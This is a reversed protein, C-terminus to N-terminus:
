PRQASPSQRVFDLLLRIVLTSMNEADTKQLLNTVHNAYTKPAVGLQGIVDVRSQGKAHLSLIETERPTLGYRGAAERVALAVDTAPAKQEQWRRLMAVLLSQEFPKLAYQAGLRTAENILSPTLMATLMLVSLDPHAERAARLVDLGSGDPLCIDIIAASLDELDELLRIADHATPAIHPLLDERRVLKEIARATNRDDEVVLVNM